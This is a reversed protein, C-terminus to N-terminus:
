QGFNVVKITSTDLTQLTNGVAFSSITVQTNSLRTVTYQTGPTGGVVAVSYGLYDGVVNALNAVVTGAVLVASVTDAGASLPVNLVAPNVYAEGQTTGGSGGIGSGGTQQLAYFIKGGDTSKLTLQWNTDTLTFVAGFAKAIFNLLANTNPSQSAAYPM